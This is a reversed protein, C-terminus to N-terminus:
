LFLSRFSRALRNSRYPLMPLSAGLLSRTSIRCGQPELVEAGANSTAQLYDHSGEIAAARRPGVPMAPSGSRIDTAVFALGATGFAGGGIHDTFLM